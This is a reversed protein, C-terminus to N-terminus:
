FEGGSFFLVRHETLQDLPHLLILSSVILVTQFPVALNKVTKRSGLVLVCASSGIFALWARDRVGFAKPTSLSPDDSMIMNTERGPAFEVDAVM